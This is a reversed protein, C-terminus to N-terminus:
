GLKENKRKFYWYSYIVILVIVNPFFIYPNSWPTGDIHLNSIPWLFPTPFFNITHLPMDVLIHLPWGFTLKAFSKKGLAWLVAFVLLYIVLSHTVNYISHVYQPVVNATPPEIRGFPFPVFGLFAMLFFPGFALLDPLIGFMFATIYDRRKKRGFAIGAYLGHSLIDM